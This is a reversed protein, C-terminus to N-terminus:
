HLRRKAIAGFHRDTQRAPVAFAHSMLALATKNVWGEAPWETLRRKVSSQDAGAAAVASALSPAAQAVFVPAAPTAASYVPELPGAAGTWKV